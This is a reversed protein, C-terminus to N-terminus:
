REARRRRVLALLAGAAGVGLATAGPEPIYYSGLLIFMEDETTVGGRAACADCWENEPPGCLSHDGGCFMGKKGPEDGDVCYTRNAPCPGGIGFQNLTEPPIPFPLGPLGPLGPPMPAQSRRKVPPSTPTAGNDYRSCFLLTREEVSEGAFRRPPDFRLQLPDSYDTSTYVPPDPRPGSCIPLAPDPNCPSFFPNPNYPTPCGPQCPANPPLWTRWRTGRLHTHSSLEFLRAHRPITYTACIEQTGFPPVDQAFIWRAEFIGELPYRQQDPPALELNLYQAMTSPTSTLNFAHSNWVVVGALPLTTYVGDALRQEYFPEQSGSFTPLNGGGGGGFSAQSADPPGYGVCAVSSVVAGSCGPNQGTAPDVALPDCPLGHRTAHEPDSPELKYTWGGWGAHSPGYQGTYIHIISHHSQPDQYLTQRNWRFCKGSPNNVNRSGTTAFRPPCEVQAEPPVVASLDYYTAMCIEDEGVESATTPPLPWPTQRLQVGVGAPPAPPVPIKLPTPPPLCTGLLSQTGEVVGDRPAGGRIWRRVAELHEETLATRGGSPMPTGPPVVFGQGPYTKAALKIFLYSLQPEGPEVLKLEPYDQSPTGGGDGLLATWAADRSLDLGNKPEIPDHCAGLTCGYGGEFVVEQIAEFTSDHSDGDCTGIECTAECGDGSLLNGDDCAEGPQAVGDGCLRTPCAGPAAAGSAVFAGAGNVTAQAASFSACYGTDGIRFHVWVEDQPGDPSWPWAPGAAEISLEGQRLTVRRVGGRAGAPDEYAFGTALSGTWRTRDLAILPTRGSEEGGALGRVLVGAGDTRPDHDVLVVDGGTAIFSFSASEPAPVEIAIADGPIPFTDDHGLAARAVTLGVALPVVAAARLVARLLLPRM